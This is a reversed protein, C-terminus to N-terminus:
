RRKTKETNDEVDSSVSGVYNTVVSLNKYGYREDVTENGLVWNRQKVLNVISENQKELLSLVVKIMIFNPLIGIVEFNQCVPNQHDFGKYVCFKLYVSM